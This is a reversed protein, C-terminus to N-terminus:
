MSTRHASSWTPGLVRDFAGALRGQNCPSVAVAVRPTYRPCSEGIRETYVFRDPSRIIGMCFYAPSGSQISCKTSFQDGKHLKFGRRWRDLTPSLSFGM